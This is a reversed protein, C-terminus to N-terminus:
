KDHEREKTSKSIEQLKKKILRKAVPSVKDTFLIGELHDYEHQFARGLLEEGTEVVEKGNEDTYKVTVKVARSVNKYVGPISLCGEENEVTEQSYEIVPNIVKRIVGDGVDIVFFRKNVGDQPAALGVGKIDHLTEVMDDLVKLLEPTIKEVPTSKERLVHSGYKKIELIM